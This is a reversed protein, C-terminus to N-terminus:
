EENSDNEKIGIGTMRKITDQEDVEAQVAALCKEAEKKAELACSGCIVELSADYGLDKIEKIISNFMEEDSHFAQYTLPRHCHQCITSFSNIMSPEYCMAGMHNALYTPLKQAALEKLQEILEERNLSHKM